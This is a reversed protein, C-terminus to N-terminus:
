RLLKKCHLSPTTTGTFKVLFNASPDDVARASLEVIVSNSRSTYVLTERADSACLPTERAGAAVGQVITM